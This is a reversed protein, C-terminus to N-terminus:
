RRERGIRRFQTQSQKEGFDDTKSLESFEGPQLLTGREFTYRVDGRIGWDDLAVAVNGANVLELYEHVDETLDLLPTDDEAFLPEEVPHYMIENIKVQAEVDSSLILPLGCLAVLISTRTHNQLIRPAQHKRYIM